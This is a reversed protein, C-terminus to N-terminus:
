QGDRSEARAERPQLRRIDASGQAEVRLRLDVSCLAELEARLNNMSQQEDSTVASLAADVLRCLTNLEALSFRRTDYKFELRLTPGPAAVVVLPYGEYVVCRLEDVTPEAPTAREFPLPLNEVVLLSGVLDFAHAVGGAHLAATLPTTLHGIWELHRHQVAGLWGQLFGARELGVRVPLTNICVGVIEESATMEPPRLSATMAFCVDDANLFAGLALAWASALQVALTVKATRASRRMAETRQESILLVLSAMSSPDPGQAERGAGGLRPAGALYRRWFGDHDMVKGAALWTTYDAFSGRPVPLPQGDYLKFLQQVLLQQSWGDLILHHHTWICWRTSDDMEVLLLRMLPAVTLDFGRAMDRQLLGDLAEVRSPGDLGCLDQREIPWEAVDHTVQTPDAPNTLDIAARLVPYRRLLKDCAHRFRDFDFNGTLRCSIQTVYASKSGPQLSHFLIGRQLPTLPLAARTTDTDHARPVEVEHRTGRREIDEALEGVTPRGFLMNTTLALGRLRAKAVIAVGLISDGGLEFYNHHIGVPVGLVESLIACLEIETQTRPETVSAAVLKAYERPALRRLLERREPSLVDFRAKLDEM